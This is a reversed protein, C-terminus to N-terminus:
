WKRAEKSPTIYINASDSNSIVTKIHDDLCLYPVSVIYYLCLGYKNTVTIDYRLRMELLPHVTSRFEDLTFNTGCITIDTKFIRVIPM